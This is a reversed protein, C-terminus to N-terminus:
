DGSIVPSETPHPKGVPQGNHTLQYMPKCREAFSFSNSILKTCKAASHRLTTGLLGCHVVQWLEFKPTNRIGRLYVSTSRTTNTFLCRVAHPRFIERRAKQMGKM